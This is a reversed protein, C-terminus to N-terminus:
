SAALSNDTATNANNDKVTVTIQGSFQGQETSNVRQLNATLGQAILTSTFTDLSDRDPAILTFSVADAQMELTQAHLASQKILPVIRALVAIHPASAQSEHRLKPQIQTKIKLRANLPEDPFWSQYQAAIATQTKTTAVSYRYSQLGDATIQLILAVMAVMVAIRLHASVASDSSASFFNLAHREPISIPTATISLPTLLIQQEAILAATETAIAASEFTESQVGEVGTCPITPLVCIESLQQRQEFILPLYSVAMGQTESQRILTTYQDQYLVLQQGAGQAGEDPIPLLLFDPLMTTIRFGALTASKQWLEIDSQALAYLTHSEAYAAVGQRVVLQEVPAISLEEFLYQKGTTGLQKLQSAALTTTVQLVHTSPFYLCLSPQSNTKYRHYTDQLQQWGNVTQWQQTETHWVALPSGQARLWVQLM